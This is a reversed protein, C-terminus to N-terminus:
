DRLLQGRRALVGGDDAEAGDDAAVRRVVVVDGAGRRAADGVSAEIRPDGDDEAHEGAVRDLLREVPRADLRAVLAVIGGQGRDFHDIEELLQGCLIIAPFATRPPPFNLLRERPRSTASCSKNWRSCLAFISRAAMSCNACSRSRCGSIRAKQRARYSPTTACRFSISSRRVAAASFQRTARM